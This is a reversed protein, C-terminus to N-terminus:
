IGTSLRKLRTKSFCIWYFGKLSKMFPPAAKLAHTRTPANGSTTCPIMQLPEPKRQTWRGQQVLLRSLLWNKCIVAVQSSTTSKHRQRLRPQLKWKNWKQAHRLKRGRCGPEGPAHCVCKHSSQRWQRRPASYYQVIDVPPTLHCCWPRTQAQGVPILLCRLIFLSRYEM